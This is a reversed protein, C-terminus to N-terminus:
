SWARFLNFGTIIEISYIVQVSYAYSSIKHSILSLRPIFYTIFYTAVQKEPTM